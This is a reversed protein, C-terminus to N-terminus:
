EGETTELNDIEASETSLMSLLNSNIGLESLKSKIEQVLELVNKFEKLGQEIEQMTSLDKQNLEFSVDNINDISTNVENVIETSNVDEPNFELDDYVQDLTDSAEKFKQQGEPSLVSNLEKLGTDRLSVGGSKLAESIGKGEKLSEIGKKIGENLSKGLIELAKTEIAM